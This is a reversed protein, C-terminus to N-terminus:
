MLINPATVMHKLKPIHGHVMSLWEELNVTLESVQREDSSIASVGDAKM